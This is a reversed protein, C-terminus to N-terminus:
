NINEGFIILFSIIMLLFTADTFSFSNCRISLSLKGFILHGYIIVEYVVNITNIVSKMDATKEKHLVIYKNIYM